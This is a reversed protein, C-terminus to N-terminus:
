GEEEEQEKVAAYNSATKTEVRVPAEPDGLVDRMSRIMIGEVCTVVDGAAYSDFETVVEDHISDVVLCNGPVEHRRRYMNTLAVKMGDGAVSQVMFNVWEPLYVGLRKDDRNGKSLSIKRVRGTGSVCLDVGSNTLEAERRHWEKIRPRREFYATKLKEAEGLAGAWAPNGKDPKLGTTRMAVSRAGRCYVFGFNGEKAKTRAEKYELESMRGVAEPGLTQVMLEEHLDRGAKIADYMERDEAVIAAVVLEIQSYDTISLLRGEPVKLAARHGSKKASPLNQLNPRSSSLRTTRVAQNFDSRVRGEHYYARSMDKVDKKQLAGAAVLDRLEELSRVWKIGYTTVNKEAAKRRLYTRVFRGVEEPGTIKDANDGALSPRKGSKTASVKSFDAGMAGLVRIAQEDSGMNWGKQPNTPEAGSTEAMELLERTAEDKIRANQAALAEWAGVDVAFGNNELWALAPTFNTEIELPVSADAPRGTMESAKRTVTRLRRELTDWLEFLHEVDGVAYRVQEESLDEALWESGQQEKDLDLGLYKKTLAALSKGEPLQEPVSLRGHEDPKREGEAVHLLKALVMTDRAPGDHHYGYANMLVRLDFKINHGLLTKSRLADLLGLVSARGVKPLHVAKPDTGPTVVTLVAPTCRTPDLAVDRPGTELDLAVVTTAAVTESLRRVGEDTTVLAGDDPTVLAGPDQELPAEVTEGRPGLDGEDGGGGPPSPPDQDPPEPAPGGKLVVYKLPTWPVEEDTVEGNKKLESVRNSVTRVSAGLKEALDPRTMAKQQLAALIKDNMTLKRNGDEDESDEPVDWVSFKASEDCFEARVGFAPGEPGFSAKRQMIRLKDGVGDQDSDRREIQYIARTPNELYVSGYSDKGGQKSQHHVLLPTVGLKRLPRIYRRNFELAKEPGNMEGKLYNIANGLSDLVVLRVPNGEGRRAECFQQVAEFSRNLGRDTGDEYWLDEPWQTETKGEQERVGAVVKKLRRYQDDLELEFDWYVVTGPLQVPYGFVDPAGVAIKAAVLMAIYSKLHAQKAFIMCSHGAPLLQAVVFQQPGPDPADMMRVLGYTPFGDEKDATGLLTAEDMLHRFEEPTGGYREIWDSLDEKDGTVPLRLLRVSNAAKALMRGAKLMHQAGAEDNDPILFLDAGLYYAAMDEDINKAGFPTTTFVEGLHEEGAHVDKEGEVGIIPRRDRTAALLRPLRYPVKKVADGLDKEYGGTEPDYRHATFSKSGDGYRLRKVKYLPRGAPDEYVYEAELRGRGGQKRGKNYETSFARWPLGFGDERIREQTHTGLRQSCPACNFLLRVYGREDPETIELDLSATHEKGDAEHLLCLVRAKRPGTEEISGVLKDYVDPFHERLLDV